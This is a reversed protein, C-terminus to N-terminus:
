KSFLLLLSIFGFVWALIISLSPQQQEILSAIIPILLYTTSLLVAGARLHLVYFHTYDAAFFLITVMFILPWAEKAPFFGHHRHTTLLLVASILVIGVGTWLTLLIPSVNNLKRDVFSTELAYLTSCALCLYILVKRPLM